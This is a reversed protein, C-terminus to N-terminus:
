ELTTEKILFKKKMMLEKSKQDLELGFDNM